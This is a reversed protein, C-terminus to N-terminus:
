NSSMARNLDRALDDVLRRTNHMLNTIHYPYIIIHALPRGSKSTFTCLQYTHCIEKSPRAVVFTNGDSDRTYPIRHQKLLSEFAQITRTYEMPHTRHENEIVRQLLSKGQITRSSSATRVTQSLYPIFEGQPRVRALVVSKVQNAGVYKHLSLSISDFQVHPVTPADVQNMPIGGYHAADLHIYGPIGAQQLWNYIAQVDDCSGFKTSGWVCVIVPHRGHEQWNYLVKHKLADVDMQDTDDHAVPIVVHPFPHKTAAGVAYALSFHASECYYVIAHDFKSM